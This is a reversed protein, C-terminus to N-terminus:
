TPGSSNGFAGAPMVWSAPNVIVPEDWAPLLARRVLDPQDVLAQYPRGRDALHRIGCARQITRGFGDEYQAIREFWDPALFRMSAWQDANGFICAICSLRSWGLRYAPAPVIGHHRMLDWIAHEDLGHVPRWRDVHRRRRTGDRTDTRDPEFTAYHARARSEQAREGTVVLTRSELFRDQARILAAMVDIKMYASCWRQNLNASVQPFQLRTGPPGHGGVVGVGGGPVEFHIPATAAGNRLMERQFGGEKWSLYLPMGLARTVARCYATTSPWDMFAPGAGDVDHHYVDIRDPPVGAKLLTLLSAVSDKGGSFAVVFHDYSQLDPQRDNPAARPLVTADFRRVIHSM